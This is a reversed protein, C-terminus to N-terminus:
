DAEIRDLVPRLRPNGTKLADWRSRLGGSALGEAGKRAEHVVAATVAGVPIVLALTVAAVALGAALGPRRVRAAIRRHVPRTILALVGAWALAGLFPRALLWCVYFAILMLLALAALRAEETRIRVASRGKGGLPPTPM